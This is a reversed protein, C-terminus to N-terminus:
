YVYICKIAATPHPVTNFNPTCFLLKALTCPLMHLSPSFLMDVTQYPYRQLCPPIRLTWTHQLLMVFKWWQFNFARVQELSSMNQWLQLQLVWTDQVSGQGWCWEVCKPHVPINGLRNSRLGRWKVDFGSRLLARTASHFCTGVAMSIGCLRWLHNTIIREAFMLCLVYVTNHM